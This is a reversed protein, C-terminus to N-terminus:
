SLGIQRDPSEIPLPVRPANQADPAPLARLEAIVTPLDGQKRWVIRDSANSRQATAEFAHFVVLSDVTGDSWPHICINSQMRQWGPESGLEDLAMLAQTEDM